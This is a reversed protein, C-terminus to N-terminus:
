QCLCEGAPCNDWSQQLEYWCFLSGCVVVCDGHSTCVENSSCFTDGNGCQEGDPRVGAPRQHRAPALRRPATEAAMVPSVFLSLLLAAKLTRM